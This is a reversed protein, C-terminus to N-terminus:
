VRLNWVRENAQRAKPSLGCPIVLCSVSQLRMALLVSLRERENELRGDLM